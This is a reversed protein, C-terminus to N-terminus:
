IGGFEVIETAIEGKTVSEAPFVISVKFGKAPQYKKVELEDSLEVGVTLRLPINFPPEM